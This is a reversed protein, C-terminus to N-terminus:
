ASVESKLVVHGCKMTMRLKDRGNFANFESPTGHRGCVPCTFTSVSSGPQTM